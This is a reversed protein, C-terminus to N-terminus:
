PGARVSKRFLAWGVHPDTGHGFSEIHYPKPTHHMRYRPDVSAHEIIIPARSARLEICLTTDLPLQDGPKLM